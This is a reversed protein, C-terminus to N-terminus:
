EIKIEGGQLEGCNAYSFVESVGALDICVGDAGLEGTVPDIGPPKGADSVGIVFEGEHSPTMGPQTRYTGAFQGLGLLNPDSAALQKCTMGPVSFFDVPQVTGHVDVNLGHDHFQFQGEHLVATPVGLVTTTKCKATFGFTAKEGSAPSLSPIWGGGTMKTCGTAMFALALVLPILGFLRLRGPIATAGWRRMM